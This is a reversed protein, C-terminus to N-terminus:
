LGGDIGVLMPMVDPENNVTGALFNTERLSRQVFDLEDVTNGAHM